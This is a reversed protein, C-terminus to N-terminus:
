FGSKLWIQCGDAGANAFLRSRAPLRLWSDREFWEGGEIFSGQMVFIELGQPVSLEVKANPAWREMAVIERDDRFLELERVGPQDPSNMFM